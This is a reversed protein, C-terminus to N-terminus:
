GGAHFTECSVLTRSQKRDLAERWGEGLSETSVKVDSKANWDDLLGRGANLESNSDGWFGDNVSNNCVDANGPGDDTKVVEVLEQKVPDDGSLGDGAM